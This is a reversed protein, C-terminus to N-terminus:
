KQKSMTWNDSITKLLPIKSEDENDVFPRIFSFNRYNQKKKKIEERKGHCCRYVTTIIPIKRTSLIM